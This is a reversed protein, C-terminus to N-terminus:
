VKTVTPRIRSSYYLHVITTTKRTISTSIKMLCFCNLRTVRLHHFEIDFRVCSAKSEKSVYLLALPIRVAM